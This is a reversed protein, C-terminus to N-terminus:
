RQQEEEYSCNGHLWDHHRLRAHEEWAVQTDFDKGCYPCWWVWRTRDFTM